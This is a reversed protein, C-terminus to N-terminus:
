SKVLLLHESIRSLLDQFRFPKALYDDAGCRIAKAKDQDDNRATVVIVPLKKGKSRLERLVTFGDKIPLGLDLVMLDFQKNSAIEIAQEGDEAVSTLYGKKQLGKQLFAALRTEDEVILIQSM